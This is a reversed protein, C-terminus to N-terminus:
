SVPQPWRNLRSEPLARMGMRVPADYLRAHGRYQVLPRLSMPQLGPIVVRVASHDISALERTSIDVAYVPLGKDALLGILYGLRDSDSAFEAPV